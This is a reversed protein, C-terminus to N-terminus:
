FVNDMNLALDQGSPEDVDENVVNDQGGAIFLLQEKDLAQAQMLLMKDLNANRVRNQAGGYGAAGAGWANNGQSRNQRGQVNQVVVSSDQVTAQN